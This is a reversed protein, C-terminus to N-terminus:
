QMKREIKWKGIEHNIETKSEIRACVKMLFNDNMEITSKETAIEGIIRVVPYSRYLYVGEIGPAGIAIDRYGNSDVDVGRSISHGFM